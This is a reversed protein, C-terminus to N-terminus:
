GLCNDRHEYGRCKGEATLKYASFSQLGAGTQISRRLPCIVSYRSSSQDTGVSRGTGVSHATGVSRAIDVSRATDVSEAIGVYQVMDVSRATDVSEAIGVSQAMDVSRTTDVSEAIGVSQATGWYASRKENTHKMLNICTKQMM